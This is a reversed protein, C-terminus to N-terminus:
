QNKRVQSVEYRADSAYMKGPPLQLGPRFLMGTNEDVYLRNKPNTDAGSSASKSGPDNFTYFQKGDADASRGTLVVYHDANGGNFGPSPTRWTVGVMVPKGADLQADIYKQGEAARAPSPNIRGATDKSDAININSAEDGGGPTATNKGTTMMEKVMPNCSKPGGKVNGHDFHQSYWPVDLKVPKFDKSVKAASTETTIAEQIVEPGKKAPVAIKLAAAGQTRLAAASITPGTAELQPLAPLVAALASGGDFADVTNQGIPAKAPSNPAVGADAAIAPATDPTVTTIFSTLKASINM